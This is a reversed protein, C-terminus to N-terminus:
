GDAGVQPLRCDFAMFGRESPVYRVEVAADKEIAPKLDLPISTVHLFIDQDVDDVIVFGYGREDNFFKIRGAVWPVDEVEGNIYQPTGDDRLKAVKFRGTGAEANRLEAEKKMVLAGAPPASRFRREVKPPTYLTNVVAYTEIRSM